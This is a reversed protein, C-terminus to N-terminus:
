ASIDRGRPIFILSGLQCCCYKHNTSPSLLAPHYYCLYCTAVVNCYRRTVHSPKTNMTENENHCFPVMSVIRHTHYIRTRVGQVFSCWISHIHLLLMSEQYRSSVSHNGSIKNMTGMCENVYLSEM